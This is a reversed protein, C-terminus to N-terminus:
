DGMQQFASVTADPGDEGDGGDGGDKTAVAGYSWPIDQTASAGPLAFRATRVDLSAGDEEGRVYTITFSAAAGKALTLRRASAGEEKGTEKSAGDVLLTVTPFGELVCEAGRNTLTVTVTGTDGAAPAPSAAIETGSGGIRCASSDGSEDTGGGEDSCSTLLLAAAVSAAALAVTPRTARM